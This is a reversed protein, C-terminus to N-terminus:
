VSKHKRHGKQAKLRGRRMSVWSPNEAEIKRVQPLVDPTQRRTRHGISNTVTGQAM